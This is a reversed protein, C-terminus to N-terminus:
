VKVANILLYAAVLGLVAYVEVFAPLILAKGAEEERKAVIGIAAAAAKGQYIASFMEVIAIPACIFLLQAGAATSIDMKPTAGLLDLKMMVLFGILLSYFGQTGPIGILPIMKGFKRPEETIVGSAMQGAISVGIASGTGGLAIVLAMGLMALTFGEM